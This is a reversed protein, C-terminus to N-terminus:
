AGSGGDDSAAVRAAPSDHGRAGSRSRALSLAGVSVLALGAAGLGALVTVEGWPTSPGPGRAVAARAPGSATASPSVVDFLAGIPSIAYGSVGASQTADLVYQGPPLSPVVFHTSLAGSAAPTVTGVVTAPLGAATASNVTLVVPSGPAFQTGTVAVDAGAAVSTSSMHLTGLSSCAFAPAALLVVALAAGAAMGGGVARRRREGRVPVSGAWRALSGLM